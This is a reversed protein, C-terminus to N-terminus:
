GLPVALEAVGVVPIVATFAIAFEIPVCESLAELGAVALAVVAHHTAVAAVIAADVAARDILTRDILIRPDDDRAAAVVVVCRLDTIAIAEVGAAVVGAVAVSEIGDSGFAITLAVVVVVVAVAVAFEVLPLIARRELLSIALPVSLDSLTIQHNPSKTIQHDNPSQTLPQNPSQTLPQSLSQKLSQQDHIVLYGLGAIM